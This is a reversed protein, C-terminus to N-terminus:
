LMSSIKEYPFGMSRKMRATGIHDGGTLCLSEWKEVDEM